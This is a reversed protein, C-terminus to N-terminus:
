ARRRARRPDDVQTELEGYSEQRVRELEQLQHDMRALSEKLPRVHGTLHTEALELFRRATRTSRRRRFAKIAAELRADRRSGARSRPEAVAGALARELSSSRRSAGVGNSSRPGCRSSSPSRASGRSRHSACRHGDLRRVTTPDASPAEQAVRASCLGSTCEGAAHGLFRAHLRRLLAGTGGLSLTTATARPRDGGRDHADHEPEDTTAGRKRCEHPPALPLVSVAPSRAFNSSLRNCTASRRRRELADVRNVSGLLVDASTSCRDRRGAPRVVATGATKPM